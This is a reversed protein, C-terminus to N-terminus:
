ADKFGILGKIFRRFSQDARTLPIREIRYEQYPYLRAGLRSKFMALSDSQGTEGMHYHLCGSECADKIALFHLLDNARTPGALDKNMAGRTYQANKGQLVLIAAAPENRYWAIWLHIASGLHQFMKQFKRLPDRRQARLHALWSPEHQHQAWRDISQQFLCYFVPVLEGSQDLRIDLRSAEAKRVNRRTNENFAKSWIQSMGPRLDLVHAARDIATVCPHQAGKWAESTLPDPRILVRLHPDAVLDSCILNVVGPTLPASGILGGMGWAYPPSSLTGLRAPLYRSEVMPLIFCGRGPIEYCRSADRYGGTDCICDIWAPTQTILANPDAQLVAEWTERPAPAALSFGNNKASISSGNMTM